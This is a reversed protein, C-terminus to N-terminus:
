RYCPGAPGSTDAEEVKVALAGKNVKMWGNNQPNNCPNCMPIIYVETSYGNIHVHGGGYASNTCGFIRCRQPWVRRTKQLWYQKWSNSGRPACAHTGEINRVQDNETLLVNPM